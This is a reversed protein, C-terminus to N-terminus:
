EKKRGSFGLGVAGAFLLAAVVAASRSAVPKEVVSREPHDPDYYVTIKSGASRGSVWDGLYREGDVSYAYVAYRVKEEWAPRATGGRRHSPPHVITETRGGVVEAPVPKWTQVQRDRLALWAFLLSAAFFSVTFFARKSM